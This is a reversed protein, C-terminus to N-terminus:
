RRDASTPALLVVLSLVDALTPVFEPLEDRRLEGLCRGDALDPDHHVVVVGDATLHVDLEVSDAGLAVAAAFAEITNGPPHAASAGSRVTSTDFTPRESRSRDSWHLGM